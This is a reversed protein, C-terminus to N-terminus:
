RDSLEFKISHENEWQIDLERADYRYWSTSCILADIEQICKIYVGIIAFRDCVYISILCFTIYSTRVDWRSSDYISLKGRISASRDPLVLAGSAAFHTESPLAFRRGDGTHGVSAIIWGPFIWGQVNKVDNADLWSQHGRM